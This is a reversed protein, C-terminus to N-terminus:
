HVAVAIYTRTPCRLGDGVLHEQIHGRLNQAIAEETASREDVPVQALDAAAASRVFALYDPSFLTVEVVTVEADAFGAETMRTRLANADESGFRSAISSFGIRERVIHDLLSRIPQEGLPAWTSVYARGGPALIRRMEHLAAQRDPLYQLGQQNLALDFAADAFPLATADGEQWTVSVGESAACRRAVTLMAPDIDIGIVSGMPVVYPAVLRAIIGTGCAIDVVHDGPRPAARAILDRAFPRFQLPVFHEEYLRAAALAGSM